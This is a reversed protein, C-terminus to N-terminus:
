VSLSLDMIVFNYKNIFIIFVFVEIIIKLMNTIQVAVIETLLLVVAINTNAVCCSVFRLNNQYWKATTIIVVSM